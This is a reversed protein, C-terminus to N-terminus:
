RAGPPMRERWFDLMMSWLHLQTDRGSISHTKNPYMFFEFQEGAAVFADVMQTSQQFHVNDDHTGHVLLLASELRDAKTLPAGKEYGEPNERPTRMFRETYITDYFKWHTVPAVSVGAAFRDGGDLLSLLTMYGGYSWGWIGIRSGDAWPQDALWNAAHIQDATELQGLRLYTQSEFANGRAGTGRNDVSVVVYGERALLQHWLFRRGGWADTVTQSGPGGYVYMVVPWARGDGPDFGEPTLMWGNLEVGDPTAVTFFDPAGVGAENLTGRLRANDVLTRLAAGEGDRVTIEAPAAAATRTDIWVAGSPSVDARHTGETGSVRVPDGGALDVRYIERRLPSEMAAQFWVRGTADVGEVSTVEWPGATLPRELTGDRRHLYLHNWGSRESSWVFHEGDNVWALDDHVNLWTESTETHIVRSEGTGADALILDLRNQHRNLRQILLEDPSGAWAMRALYVDPNDGTDMWTIEGGDAGVVGIRAFSNPDGAKPYPLPIPEAYLEMEDIMNFTKIPTEDLQWFAIRESDPSWRWGDRLDLEEEHVWDFTGNIINDGGDFTVQTERGTALDVVFLNRERVFGVKGGDPSFKAFMQWGFGTSLPALAGTARDFIFYVGKTNQRWVRQSRTYLLLRDGDPSWEYGEIAIPEREGPPTLTSGDVVVQRTGSAADERVLHTYGDADRAIFTFGSPDLPDWRTNPVGDAAFDDTGFIREVSLEQAEVGGSGAGLLLAAAAITLAGRHGRRRGARVPPRPSSVAARRIAPAFM